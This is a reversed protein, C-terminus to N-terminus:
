NVPTLTPKANLYLLLSIHANVHLKRSPNGHQFVRSKLIKLTQGVHKFFQKLQLKNVNIFVTTDLFKIQNEQMKEATFKLFPDFKNMIENEFSGLNNDSFKM